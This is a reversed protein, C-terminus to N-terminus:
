GGLEVRRGAMAVTSERHAILLTTIGLTKVVQTVAQERETDLARTAEYLPLFAAVWILM